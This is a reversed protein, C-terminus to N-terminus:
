QFRRPLKRRNQFRHLIKEDVPIFDITDAAPEAPFNINTTQLKNNGIVPDGCVPCFKNGEPVLSGCNLCYYNSM